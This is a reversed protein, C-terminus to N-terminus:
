TMLADLVHLSELLNHASTERSSLFTIQLCLFIYTALVSLFTSKFHRLDTLQFAAPEM